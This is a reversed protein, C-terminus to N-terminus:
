TTHTKLPIKYERYKFNEKDYIEKRADSHRKGFFTDDSIDYLVCKKKGASKRLGRGISQLTRIKAKMSSAFVIKRLSPINIGTSYTGYSAVAISNSEKEMAQRVYERNDMKVDGHIFYVKRKQKKAMESIDDFLIQGHKGVLQFLVLVTEPQDLVLKSIFKNRAENSVLWDLYKHYDYEQKPLRHCLHIMEIDLDALVNKEILKKTKGAVYVDGFLGMIILENMETDDLTGTLGIRNAVHHAKEMISILSKAKFGHCNKVVCGDVVYNHNKEVHLNYTNGRYEILTPKQTLKM